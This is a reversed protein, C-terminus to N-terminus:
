DSFSIEEYDHIDYTIPGKGMKDNASMEFSFGIHHYKGTYLDMYSLCGAYIFASARVDELNLAAAPAVSAVKVRISDDPLLQDYHPTFPNSYIGSEACNNKQFYLPSVQTLAGLNPIPRSEVSIILKLAPMTGINKITYYVSVDSSNADTIIGSSRELQLHLIPRYALRLGLSQVRAASNLANAARSESNATRSLSLNSKAQLETAKASAASIATEAAVELKVQALQQSLIRNQESTKSALYAIKSIAREAREATERGGKATDYLTWLTFGVGCIAALLTIADFVDRKPPEPM